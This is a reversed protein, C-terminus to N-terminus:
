NCAGYPLAVLLVRAACTPSLSFIKMACHMTNDLRHPNLDTYHLQSLQRSRAPLVCVCDSAYCHARLSGEEDAGAPVGAEADPGCTQSQSVQASCSHDAAQM